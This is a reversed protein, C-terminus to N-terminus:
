RRITDHRDVPGRRSGERLIMNVDEDEDDEFTYRLFVWKREWTM